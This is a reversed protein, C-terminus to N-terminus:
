SAPAAGPASAEALDVELLTNDLADLLRTTV